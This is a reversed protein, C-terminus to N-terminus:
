CVNANENDTADSCILLLLWVLGEGWESEEGTWKGAAESHQRRVNLEVFVSM